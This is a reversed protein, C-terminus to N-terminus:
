QTLCLGQPRLLSQPHKRTSLPLHGALYHFHQCCGSYQCHGKKYSNVEDDNNTLANRIDIAHGVRDMANLDDRDVAHCM